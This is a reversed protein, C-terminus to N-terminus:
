QDGGHPAVSYPLPGIETYPTDGDYNDIRPQPLWDLDNFGRHLYGGKDFSPGEWGLLQWVEEDSYLRTITEGRVYAFWPAGALSRLLGLTVEGEPLSNLGALLVSSARADAAALTCIARATREYPGDPITSHPYAVRIVEALRRRHEAGLTLDESVAGNGHQM